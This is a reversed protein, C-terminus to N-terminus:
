VAAPEADRAVLGLEKRVRDEIAKFEALSIVGAALQKQALLLEPPRLLSGVIDAHATIM